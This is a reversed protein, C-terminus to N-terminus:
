IIQRTTASQRHCSGPPLPQDAAAIRAAYVWHAKRVAPGAAHDALAASQQPAAHHLTLPATLRVPKPRPRITQGALNGERWSGNSARWWQDPDERDIQDLLEDASPASM